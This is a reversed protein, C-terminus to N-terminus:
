FPECGMAPCGLDWKPHAAVVLTGHVVPVGICIRVRVPVVGSKPVSKGGTQLVPQLLWQLNAKFM